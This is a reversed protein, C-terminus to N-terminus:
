GWSKGWSNKVKWYDLGTSSDTGYGVIVMAHNTQSELTGCNSVSYVSSAYSNFYPNSADFSIWLPGYNYLYSKMAAEDGFTIIGYALKAFRVGSNKAKCSSYDNATYPYSSSSDLNWANAKLYDFSKEFFGGGCGYNGYAKSCDVIQQESLDYSAPYQLTFVTELVAVTAFAYCSGCQGQNKIPRTVTVASNSTLVRGTWDFSAPLSSARRSLSLRRRSLSSRRRHDVLIPQPKDIPADRDSDNHPVYGRLTQLEDITWDSFENLKLQFTLDQVKALILSKLTEKFQELRQQQEQKNLYTRQYESKFKDFLQQVFKSNELLSLKNQTLSLILDFAQQVPKNQALSLVFDIGQQISFAHCFEPVCTFLILVLFLVKMTN